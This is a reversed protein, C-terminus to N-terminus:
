FKALAAELEANKTGVRVIAGGVVEPGTPGMEAKSVFLATPHTLLVKGWKLGDEALATAEPGERMAGQQVAATILREVESFLHQIEPEALLQETQNDSAADPSAIGSWSTYFICEEPAMKAMLPDEPGPPMGLPLGAGGGLGLLMILEIIGFMGFSSM